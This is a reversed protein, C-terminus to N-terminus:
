KKAQSIIELADQLSISFLDRNKPISTFKKMYKIYPGYRGIGVQVEENNEPNVGISKPLSLLNLALELGVDEMKYASPLPSRKPKQGKPANAGVQLYPGYPGKKLLIEEGAENTGLVKDQPKEQIGENASDEASDQSLKRTHKCEPYNSCAIFAGFKGLRLGLKGSECSPCQKPNSGDEKKPFLHDSLLEDLQDIVDSIKYKEVEKINANFGEWFDGLLTKWELKGDSVEDLKNELDATFNYEVYQLFSNVLFATVIMGRNEPIFRKKDLKVYNRDQLVSIITAYTSPRGIGLEELKKVLSAESFRPPPETFHQNPTLKKTNVEDKEYLPPLLKSDEEEDKADDQGEKYIRYFGDFVITSGNAKFSFSGDESDIIASVGDIVVNEMQCAITRKWILDYLKHYDKDLSQKIGEPALNPDIPRIAEHAEQANKAKTKYIRPSKPLYKEGLNSSIWNRSLEIAESALSVGDTRMYTILAKTEGGIDIGEYLKQAIMMTKKAGFGLKRSAEQQLSSTTFPAPPNRKQQKKEISSVFYEHKTIAELLETAKAENEIDFKELKKGSVKFLAARFEDGAKSLMNAIISWYERSQFKEIEHERDCILRLAVSQVRGASRSGPLKRWLVPSLTFGVLYDLARRAQQADVLNQDISRAESIAGLIAKKTIENFAVRKIEPNHKLAKKEKLAEVVHWSISEGERDPDTALYIIDSKKALDAIEKVHKSSSSPIEYKMAFDEEPLVSGNKSPLDRIHGFSAVVKYDSGLYKNITKAKAPSEVVVLKM